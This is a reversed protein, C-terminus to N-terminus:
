AAFRGARGHPADYDLIPGLPVIGTPNITSHSEYYHRKIHTLNVTRAIGPHQYLDRLYGSLNPYDAIRRLNCKFHGVYVPDFRVLTTFLRIDAETLRPGFLYRGRDLRSELRDLEEFLATVAEAYADQTTAFGAKYVGNNVRDYVQANLADIEERLDAPYLDPGTAGLAGFAGNLMRIIEASENSVITGRAKDWLVPVTVRGTYGPDAKLYIESLRRAGNLTDPGAGPTDGFVWGEAGMHPDVVAVSVAEELGKLARVILTRHAWPCALSVYLHYRGVEAPFGGKGTPGPAGDATVWNRFASEKRVFRGGTERTDYWSEQWVGNVLLGM